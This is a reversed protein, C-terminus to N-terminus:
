NPQEERASSAIAEGLPTLTFTVWEIQPPPPDGPVANAGLNVLGKKQLRELLAWDGTKQLEAKRFVGNPSAQLLLGISRLGVGLQAIAQKQLTATKQSLDAPSEARATFSSLALVLASVTLIRM